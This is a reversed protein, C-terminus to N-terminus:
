KQGQVRANGGAGKGARDGYPWAAAQRQRAAPAAPGTRRSPAAPGRPDSGLQEGPQWVRRQAAPSAAGLKGARQPTLFFGPRGRVFFFLFFFLSFSSFPRPASFPFPNFFFNFFGRAPSCGRNVNQAAPRLSWTGAVGPANGSIQGPRGFVPLCPSPQPSVGRM